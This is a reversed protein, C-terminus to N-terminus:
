CLEGSHEGAHSPRESVSILTKMLHKLLYKSRPDKFSPDQKGQKQLLLIFSCHDALGHPDSDTKLTEKTFCRSLHSVANPYSVDYGDLDQVAELIDLNYKSSMEPIFVKLHQGSIDEFSYNGPLKAAATPTFGGMRLQERPGTKHQDGTKLSFGVEAAEEMQEIGDEENFSPHLQETVSEGSISATIDNEFLVEYLEEVNNAEPKSKSLAEQRSANLLASVFQQSTDVDPNRRHSNFTANVERELTRQALQLSEAAGETNGALICVAYRLIAAQNM